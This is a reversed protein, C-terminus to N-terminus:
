KGSGGKHKQIFALYHTNLMRIRELVHCCFWFNGALMRAIPPALTVRKLSVRCSPFLDYLEQKKVARVNRNRPNNVRLDYSVITGGSKLVRLMEAAIRHRIDETLVSTLVTFQMVIDFTQNRYPLTAANGHVFTMNPSIKKAYEIREGLLDIGYLNEPKAGYRILNRLQGGGGCGVDLITRSGLLGTLELKSLMKLFERERAQVMYLNGWNFLSYRKSDIIREREQYVHKIRDIEDIKSDSITHM